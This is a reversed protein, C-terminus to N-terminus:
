ICRMKSEACVGFEDGFEPFYSDGGGEAVPDEVKQVM